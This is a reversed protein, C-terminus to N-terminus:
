KGLIKQNQDFNADKKIENKLLKMNKQKLIKMLFNDKYIFYQTKKFPFDLLQKKLLKNTKM